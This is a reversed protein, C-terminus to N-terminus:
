RSTLLRTGAWLDSQEPYRTHLARWTEFWTQSEKEPTIVLVRENGFDAWTSGDALILSAGVRFATDQAMHWYRQEKDSAFSDPRSSFPRKMDKM